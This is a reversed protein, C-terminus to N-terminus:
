LMDRIRDACENAYTEAAYGLYVQQGLALTKFGNSDPILIVIGKCDEMQENTMSQLYESAQLVKDMLNRQKQIVTEQDLTKM